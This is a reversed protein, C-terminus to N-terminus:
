QNTTETVKGRVNYLTLGWHFFFFFFFLNKLKVRPWQLTSLVTQRQWGNLQPSLWHAPRMTWILRLENHGWGIPVPIARHQGVFGEAGRAQKTRGERMGKEKTEGGRDKNGPSFAILPTFRLPQFERQVTKKEQLLCLASTSFHPISSSLFHTISYAILSIKSTILSQLGEWGLQSMRRVNRNTGRSRNCQSTRRGEGINRAFSITTHM